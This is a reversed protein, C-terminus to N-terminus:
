PKPPTAKIWAAIASVVEREIGIYGHYHFAECPDGHPDNGGEVIKVEVKAAHDLKAALGAAESAPSAKCADDRHSVILTPLRVSALAYDYVTMNPGFHRTVSSTLVLGDAGRGPPLLGGDVASLTGNSTGILWVPVAQQRRLYAIIAAIDAAHADSGRFGKDYGSAQDSPTDPSAVLFGAAAFLSRSRVLFNGHHWAASYRELHLRGDGGSFLIVSAATPGAPPRTLLFSVTVGPRTELTIQEEGSAATGGPQLQGAARAPSAIALSGAIVLVAAIMSTWAVRMPALM